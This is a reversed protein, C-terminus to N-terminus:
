KAPLFLSSTSWRSRRLEVPRRVLLLTVLLCIALTWCFHLEHHVWGTYLLEGLVKNAWKNAWKSALVITWLDVSPMPSRTQLEIQSSRSVSLRWGVGATGDFFLLQPWVTVNCLQLRCLSSTKDFADVNPKWARVLLRYVADQFACRSEIWFRWVWLHNLQPREPLKEPWCYPFQRVWTTMTDTWMLIQAARKVKPKLQLQQLQQLQLQFRDARAFCQRM